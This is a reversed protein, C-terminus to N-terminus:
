VSHHFVPSSRGTNSLLSESSDTNSAGRRERTGRDIGHVVRTEIFKSEEEEDEDSAVGRLGSYWENTRRQM